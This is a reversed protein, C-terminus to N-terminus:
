KRRHVTVVLHVHCVEVEGDAAEIAIGFLRTCLRFLGDLVRPLTFYAKVEEESYAYRAEKLRESAYPVDWPQLDPLGLEAAAFRRLEDLDREASPRSRQALDRLFGMVDEPSRAMKPVLSLEAYSAHGLLRAPEQTQFLKFVEDADLEYRIALRSGFSLAGIQSGIRLGNLLGKTVGLCYTIDLDNGQVDRDLAALYAQCYGRWESAPPSMEQARATGAGTIVALALLNAAFASAVRIM